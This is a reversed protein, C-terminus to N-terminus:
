QNGEVKAEEKIKFRSVVGRMYPTQNYLKGNIYIDVGPANGVKFSLPKKAKFEETVGAKKLGSFVNKKSSKVRMWVEDKFVLKIAVEGGSTDVKTMDVPTTQETKKEPDAKNALSSDEKNNTNETTQGNAPTATTTATTAATQATVQTNAKNAEGAAVPKDSTATTANKNNATTPSGETKTTETSATETNTPTVPKSIEASTKDTQTKAEDPKSNSAQQQTSNKNESTSDTSNKEGQRQISGNMNSTNSDNKAVTVTKETTSQEATTPKTEVKLAEAITSEPTQEETKTKQSFENWISTSWEEVGPIMYIVAILLIAAVFMGLQVLYPPIIPKIVNNVSASPAFNYNLDTKSRSGRSKEYLAIAEASSVNVLKAYGRLYGRIYPAEPLLDFKESELAKLTGVTLCLSDAAQEYSLGAEERYGTLLEGLGIQKATNNEDNTSDPNTDTNDVNLPETNALKLATYKTVLQNRECSYKLSLRKIVSICM